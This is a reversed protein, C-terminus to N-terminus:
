GLKDEYSEVQKGYNWEVFKIGKAHSTFIKQIIDYLRMKKTEGKAILEKHTFEDDSLFKM